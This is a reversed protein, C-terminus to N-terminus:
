GKKKKRREKGQLKREKTMDRTVHAGSKSWRPATIAALRPPRSSVPPAVVVLSAVVLSAVVAVCVADSVANDTEAVVPVSVAVVPVVPVAVVPVVPVARPTVYLWHPKVPDCSAHSAVDPPEPEVADPSLVPVDLLEVLEASVTSRVDLECRTRAMPVACPQFALAAIQPTTASVTASWQKYHQVLGSSFSLVVNVAVVVRGAVVISCWLAGYYM